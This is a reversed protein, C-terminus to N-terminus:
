LLSASTSSPSSPEIAMNEFKALSHQFHLKIEGIPGNRHKAIIIDALGAPYEENPHEKLWAEEDYYYEDRYIFLVVDADQEISGSDRLDSLQPKHSARWESARSLQSVVIVPVNMERALVKLSRTIYSIEQVRNDVRYDGQILGLHDVIILNIKREFNLRKAKSRMEIVRLQPSDDIYIPAESLIGIADMIRKEEEPTEYNLRIKRSNVLAEGAVLREVLSERSMELSFMAVCANREVSANRAINLALSTKGMSPRGAIVILDSRQFGGLFDDLGIFGSPVHQVESPKLEEEESPPEAEFYKDLIQRIHVFDRPSKGHRLGYLIDEAKDMSTDIEPSAQYGINSIQDAANILKRMMSLRYVIKAYYEIDLSTPCVSILHSLFAAGGCKELKEQRSLDQAVTIQNIAENRQYLGVCAEYIWRNRDSFFDEAQVLSEIKSITAGDILLSGVTAEEADIDHPPLRDVM